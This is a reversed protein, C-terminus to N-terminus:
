FLVIQKMIMIMAFAYKEPQQDDVNSAITLCFMTQISDCTWNIMDDSM